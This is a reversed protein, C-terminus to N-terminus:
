IFPTIALLTLPGVVILAVSVYGVIRTTPESMLPVARYIALVGVVLGVAAAIAALAITLTTQPEVLFFLVIAIMLAGEAIATLVFQRAIRGDPQKTPTTM